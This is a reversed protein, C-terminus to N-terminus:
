LHKRHKNQETQENIMEGKQKKQKEIKKNKLEQKKASRPSSDFRSSKEEKKPFKRTLYKPKEAIYSVQKRM